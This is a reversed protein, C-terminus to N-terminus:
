PNISEMKPGYDMRKYSQSSTDFGFCWRFMATWFIQHLLLPSTTAIAVESLNYIKLKVFFRKGSDSDITIGHLTVDPINQPFVNM